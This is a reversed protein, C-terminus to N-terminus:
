RSTRKRVKAGIALLGAGMLLLTGPEPVQTPSLALTDAVEALLGVDALTLPADFIRITDAFGEALDGGTLADDMFFNLSPITLKAETGPDLFSIELSSDDYINVDGTASRTVTVRSMTSQGIGGASGLLFSSDELRYALRRSTGSGLVYLGAGCSAPTSCLGSFDLVKQWFQETPGLMFDVVISFEDTSTTLNPSTLSLGQGVGFRYGQECETAAGATPVVTPSCTFSPGPVGTVGDSSRGTGGGFSALSVGGLSDSLGTWQNLRYEHILAPAAFANGATTGLLVMILAIVKATRTAALKVAFMEM